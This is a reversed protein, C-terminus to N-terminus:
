NELISAKIGMLAYIEMLIMTFWTIKEFNELELAPFFVFHKCYLKM